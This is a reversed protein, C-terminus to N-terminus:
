SRRPAPGTVVGAIQREPTSSCDHRMPPAVPASTAASSINRSWGSRASTRAEHKSTKPSARSQRRAGADVIPPSRGPTRVVRWTCSRPLSMGVRCLACDVDGDVALVDVARQDRGRVGHRAHQQHMAPVAALLLVHRARVLDGREAADAQGEVQAAVRPMAVLALRHARPCGARRARPRRCAPSGGSRPGAISRWRRCCSRRSGPPADDARQPRHAPQRQARRREVAVRLPVHGLALELRSRGPPRGAARDDRRRVVARQRGARLKRPSASITSDSCSLVTGCGTM